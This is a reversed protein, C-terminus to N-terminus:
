AAPRRGWGLGTRSTGWTVLLFLGFALVHASTCWECILGIVLLETYILYVAFGIGAVALALRATRLLPSHSRWAAPLNLLASALFFPLGFVAVPIGFIVSQPSTVVRQCNVIGTTSCALHVASTYHVLTLYISVGLGALALVVAGLPLWRPVAETDDYYDGELYGDEADDASAEYGRLAETETM